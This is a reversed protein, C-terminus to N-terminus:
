RLETIIGSIQSGVTVIKVPNLAGNATVSQTINGRAVTNTRFEATGATATAKGGTWKTYGWYGGGALAAVVLWIVLSSKSSSAM